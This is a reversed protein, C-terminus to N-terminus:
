DVYKFTLAWVWPNDDWSCGPRRGNISDWLAHYDLIPTMGLVGEAHADEESIDQVHQVRVDTLELTIRSAWRPMHISPKRIYDEAQELPTTASYHVPQRGHDHLWLDPQVMFNERVWLRDGPVGHHAISEDGYQWHDGSSIWFGNTVLSAHTLGAAIWDKRLQVVRRTQTQTGDLLARVMPASFLIPREKM